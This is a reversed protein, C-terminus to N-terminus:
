VCVNTAEGVIGDNVVTRLPLLLEGITPDISVELIVQYLSGDSVDSLASPLLKEM